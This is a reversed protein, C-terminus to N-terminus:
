GYANVVRALVLWVLVLLWLLLSRVVMYYSDSVLIRKNCNCWKYLHVIDIM